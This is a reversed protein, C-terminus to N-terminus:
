YLAGAVRLGSTRQTLERSYERPGSYDFRVCARGATEAWHDLAQAKTGKMDSKLGGLWFLGPNKCGRMHVATPAAPSGTTFSTPRIENMFAKVSIRTPRGQQRRLGGTLALTFRQRRWEHRRYRAKPM